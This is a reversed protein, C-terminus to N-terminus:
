HPHSTAFGYVIYRQPVNSAIWVEANEVYLNKLIVHDSANCLFTKMDWGIQIRLIDEEPNNLVVFQGDDSTRKAYLTIYAGKSGQVHICEGSTHLAKSVVIHGESLPANKM